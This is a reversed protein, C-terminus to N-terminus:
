NIWFIKIKILIKNIVKEMIKKKKKKQHSKLCYILNSALRIAFKIKIGFNSRIM